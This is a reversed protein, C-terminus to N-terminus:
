KLLALSCAAIAATEARLVQPGLYAVHIGKEKFLATENESWGGEPGIILLIPDDAHESVAPAGFAREVLAVPKPGLGLVTELDVVEHIEPLFVRESQEAAERVIKALRDGKLNQKVSRKAGFPVIHSVGLETAKQAVLEFTDKKLVACALWVDRGAKEDRTRAKLIELVAEGSRYELLRAEFEWGTNDLLIMETGPSMRLVNRWQKVLDPDSVVLQTQKGIPNPVFFRDVRM